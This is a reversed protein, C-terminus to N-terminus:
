SPFFGAATSSPLSPPCFPPLALAALSVGFCRDSIALFAAAALHAATLSSGSNDGEGGAEPLEPM